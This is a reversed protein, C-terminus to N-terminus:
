ETAEIYFAMEDADIGEGNPNLEILYSNYNEVWAATYIMGNKGSLIATNGKIEASTEETYNQESKLLEDSGFIRTITGSEGYTVVVKNGSEKSASELVGCLRDPRLMRFEPPVTTESGEESYSNNQANNDSASKNIIALTVTCAIVAVLCIIVIAKKNM